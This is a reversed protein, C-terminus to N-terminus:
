FGLAKAEEIMVMVKGYQSRPLEPVKDVKFASLISLAADRGHEDALTRFAARLDALSYEKEPLSTDMEVVNDPVPEGDEDVEVEVEEVEAEAAAEEAEIEAAAEEVAAEVAEEMTQAVEEVETLEETAEGADSFLITLNNVAETLAVIQVKLEDISKELM